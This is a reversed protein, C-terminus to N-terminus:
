RLAAAEREARGLAELLRTVRAELTALVKPDQRDVAGTADRILALTDRSIAELQAQVGAGEPPVPTIAGLAEALNAWHALRVVLKILAEDQYPGAM